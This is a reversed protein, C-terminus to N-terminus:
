LELAQEYIGSNQNVWVRFKTLRHPQRAISVEFIYGTLLLVQHTPMPVKM